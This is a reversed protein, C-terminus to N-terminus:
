PKHLLDQVGESKSKNQNLARLQRNLEVRLAEISKSETYLRGNIYLTPTARLGAAIAEKRDREVQAYSQPSERDAAYKVLNLGLEKAFGDIMSESLEFQHAFLLDHFAWFHGQKYAGLSARAAYHALPHRTMPFHKFVIHVFPGMEIAIENIVKSLKACHSCQFDAFEVLTISASVDGKSPSKSLDFEYHVHDQIYKKVVAQQVEIASLGEKFKRAGFEALSKAAPCSADPVCQLISKNKDCPCAGQSLLTSLAKIEAKDLGTTEIGLPQACLASGLFLFLFIFRHTQRYM